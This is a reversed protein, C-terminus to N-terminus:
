KEFAHRTRFARFHLSGCRILGGRGLVRVSHLRVAASPRRLLPKPGDTTCRWQQKKIQHVAGEHIYSAIMFSRAYPKAFISLKTLYDSYRQKM